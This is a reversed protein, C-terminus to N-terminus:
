LKMTFSSGGSSSERRPQGVIKRAVPFEAIEIHPLQHEGDLRRRLRSYNEPFLESFSRTSRCLGIRSSMSASSCFFGSTSARLTWVNLTSHQSVLWASHTVSHSLVLEMGGSIRTLRTSPPLSGSKPLAAGLQGDGADDGHRRLGHRRDDSPRLRAAVAKGLLGPEGHGASWWRLGCRDAVSM